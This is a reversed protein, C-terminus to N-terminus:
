PPLNVKMDEAILIGHMPIETLPTPALPNTKACAQHDRLPLVFCTLRQTCTVLEDSISAKGTSISESVLMSSLKVPVSDDTRVRVTTGNPPDYCPIGYERM